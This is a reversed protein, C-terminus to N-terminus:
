KNDHDDDSETEDSALLELIKEAVKEALFQSGEKTFHVNIPQQLEDLQDAIEGCLDNIPIENEMMIEAAAENYRAVDDPDRFPKVGAPFPTTTAFILQADTEKLVEVIQRMNNAYTELDAQFPDNPDNSNKSTGAKKVRKLDHLGFNFHIVDWDTDGLWERIKSVGKTTGESNGKIRMVNAKESLRAKVGATYGMSISDGIILVNPLSEDQQDAEDQQTAPSPLRGNKSLYNQNALSFSVAVVTLFISSYTPLRFVIQGKARATASESSSAHM